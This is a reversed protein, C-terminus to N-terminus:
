FRDTIEAIVQPDLALTLTLDTDGDKIRVKKCQSDFANAMACVDYFGDPLQIAFHGTKDTLFVKAVFPASATGSADDQRVYLQAGPIRARREDDVEGTLRHRAVQGLLHGSLTLTAVLLSRTRRNM